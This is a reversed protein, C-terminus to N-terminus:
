SGHFKKIQKFKSKVHKFLYIYIYLDLSVSEVAEYNELAEVLGLLMENITEEVNLKFKSIVWSSFIMLDEIYYRSLEKENTEDSGSLIDKIKKSRM